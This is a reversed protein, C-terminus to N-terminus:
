LSPLFFMQKLWDAPDIPIQRYGRSFDAKAIVADALGIHWVHALFDWISPLRCRYPQGEYQDLPIGDNVSLGPPYSMDGCVRIKTLSPPKPVCLLPITSIPPPIRSPAIGLPFVAGHDIESNFFEQVQSIHKLCSSHNPWTVGSLPLAPDRSLPWGYQLGMLVMSDTFDHLLVELAPMNLHSRVPIQAGRWNPSQLKNVDLALQLAEDPIYSPGTLPATDVLSDVFEKKFLSVPSNSWVAAPHLLNGLDPDPTDELM